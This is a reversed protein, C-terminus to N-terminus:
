GQQPFVDIAITPQYPMMFWQNHNIMPLPAQYYPNFGGMSAMYPDYFRRCGNMMDYTYPNISGSFAPSPISGVFPYYHNSM